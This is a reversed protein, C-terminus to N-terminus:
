QSVPAIGEDMEEMPTRCKLMITFFVLPPLSEARFNRTSVGVDWVSQCGDDRFDAIMIESLPFQLWNLISDAFVENRNRIRSVSSVSGCDKSQAVM